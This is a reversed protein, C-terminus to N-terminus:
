HVFLNSSHLIIKQMIFAAISCSAAVLAINPYRLIAFVYLVLNLISHLANCYVRQETKLSQVQMCVHQKEQTSVRTFRMFTKFRKFTHFSFCNVTEHRILNVTNCGEYM